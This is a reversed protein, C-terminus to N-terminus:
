LRTGHRYSTVEFSRAMRQITKKDFIDAASLLYGHIRVGDEQMWLALDM